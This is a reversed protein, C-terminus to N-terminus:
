CNGDPDLPVHMAEPAEPFRPACACVLWSSQPVLRRVRGHLITPSLTTGRGNGCSLRAATSIAMTYGGVTSMASCTTAAATIQEASTSPTSRARGIQDLGINLPPADIPVAREAAASARTPKGDARLRDPLPLPTRTTTSSPRRDATARCHRDRRSFGYLHDFSRNRRM